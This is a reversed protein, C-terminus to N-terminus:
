HRAGDHTSLLRMAGAILLISLPLVLTQWSLHQTGEAIDTAFDVILYVLIVEVLTRKLEGVSAIRMWAPMREREGAPLDIVFGFAIAYAFIVLVIAFLFADTAGMVLGIPSQAESGPRVLAGVAGALKACGEWLMVLAGGAAGLSAVLMVFRLSLVFRLM